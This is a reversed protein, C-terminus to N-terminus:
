SVYIVPSDKQAAIAAGLDGKLQRLYKAIWSQQRMHERSRSYPSRSNRFQHRWYWMIKATIWVSHTSSTLGWSLSVLRYSKSVKLFHQGQRIKNNNLSRTQYYYASSPISKSHTSSPMAEGHAGWHWPRVSTSSDTLSLVRWSINEKVFMKLIEHDLNIM